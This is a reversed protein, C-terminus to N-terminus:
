WNAGSSGYSRGQDDRDTNDWEIERGFDEFYHKDHRGTRQCWGTSQHGAGFMCWAQCPKNRRQWAGDYKDALDIGVIQVLLSRDYGPRPSRNKGIPGKM